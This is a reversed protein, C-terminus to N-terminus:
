GSDPRTGVLKGPLFRLLLMSLVIAAALLIPVNLILAYAGFLAIHLLSVAALMKKLPWGTLASLQKYNRALLLGVAQVLVSLVAATLMALLLLLAM